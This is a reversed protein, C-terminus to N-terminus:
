DKLIQIKNVIKINPIRQIILSHTLTRCKKEDLEYDVLFTLYSMGQLLTQLDKGKRVLDMFWGTKKQLGQLSEKTIIKNIPHKKMPYYNAIDFYQEIEKETAGLSNALLSVNELDYIRRQVQLGWKLDVTTKWDYNLLDFSEKQIPNNILEQNEKKLDLIEKEQYNILKDQNDIIKQAEMPNSGGLDMTTKTVKIDEYFRDLPINYNKCYWKTYTNPLQGRLKANALSHRDVGILDAVDKDFRFGERQKVKEIFDEIIGM